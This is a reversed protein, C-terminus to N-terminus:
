AVTSGNKLFFTVTIISQKSINISRGDLKSGRVEVHNFQLCWLMTLNKSPIVGWPVTENTDSILVESLRTTYKLM